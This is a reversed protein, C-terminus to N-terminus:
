SEEHRIRVTDAFPAVEIGIADGDDDSLLIRSSETTGNREFVISVLGQEFFGDATEVGDIRVIERVVSTRGLDGPLAQYSVQAAAPPAMPVQELDGMEYVPDVDAEEEGLARAESVRWELWYSGGEVDIVLRHPIGTMVSRQRAFELDAALQRAEDEMARRSRLGFNPLALGAVLAFIAIVALLEILTFGTAIGRPQGSSNQMM